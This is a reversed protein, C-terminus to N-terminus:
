NEGARELAHRLDGLRIESVAAVPDSAALVSAVERLSQSLRDVQQLQVLYRGAVEADNCLVLGFEEAEEALAALRAAISALLAASHPATSM